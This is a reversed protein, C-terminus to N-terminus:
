GGTATDEPSGDDVEPAQLPVARQREPRQVYAMFRACADADKAECLVRTVRFGHIGDSTLRTRVM